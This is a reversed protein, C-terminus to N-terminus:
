RRALTWDVWARFHAEEEDTASLRQIAIRLREDSMGQAWGAKTTDFVALAAPKADPLDGRHCPACRHGLIASATEDSPPQSLLRAVEAPPPKPACASLVLLLAFPRM